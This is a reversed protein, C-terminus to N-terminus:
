ANPAEDKSSYALQGGIVTMLVPLDMLETAPITFPDRGLVALDALKGAELTGRRDEEFDAWAADSTYMRLAEFVSIEEDQGLVRGGSTTRTTASQLGIRFDTAAMPFDSSGLVKLGADLLTRNLCCGKETIVDGFIETWKDGYIWLFCAQPSAVIKLEAAKAVQEASVPVNGFHEIRGRHDLNGDAKVAEAFAELAMDYAKDGIAHVVARLGLSHARSVTETLEKAPIRIIGHNCPDDPYGHYMAANKQLSGGDISMKVGSISIREDGFGNQLGTRALDDLTTSSEIVRVMLRVRVPFGKVKVARNLARIEKGNPVMVGVCTVGRELLYPVMGMLAEVFQDETYDPIVSLATGRSLGLKGRERLVGTPSGDPGRDISGGEPDVTSSDIGALALAASNGVTVHSGSSTLVVPHETTARDLEAATPYRREILYEDRLQFGSIWQGPPTVVARERVMEVIQDITTISPDDLNIEHVMSLAGHVLHTHADTLGPIVTAGHLDIIAPDTGAARMCDAETGACVIDTGNVALAEVTEGEARMTYFTANKFIRTATV